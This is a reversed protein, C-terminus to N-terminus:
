ANEGKEPSAQLQKLPQFFLNIIEAAPPVYGKITENGSRKWSNRAESAAFIVSDIQSDSLCKLLSYVYQGFVLTRELFNPHFRKLRFILINGEKQFSPMDPQGCCLLLVNKFRKALTGVMTSIHSSAGKPRPFAEFVIYIADPSPLTRLLECYGFFENSVPKGPKSLNEPNSIEMGYYIM